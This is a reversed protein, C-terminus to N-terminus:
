RALRRGASNRRRGHRHQRGAARAPVRHEAALRVIAAVEETSAPALIAPSAGHVRGRWDTVWPEIEGPDTIVAKPGLKKGAEAILQAQADM